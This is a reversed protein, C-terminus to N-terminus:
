ETLTMTHVYMYCTYVYVCLQVSTNRTVTYLETQLHPPGVCTHIELEERFLEWSVREM